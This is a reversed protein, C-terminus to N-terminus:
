FLGMLEKDSFALSFPFGLIGLASKGLANQSYPSHCAKEPYKPSVGRNQSVELFILDFRAKIPWSRADARPAGLSAQGPRGPGFPPTRVYQPAAVRVVWELGKPSGPGAESDPDGSLPYTRPPQTSGPIARGYVWGAGMGM